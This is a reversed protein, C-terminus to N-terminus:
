EDSPSLRDVVERVRQTEERPVVLTRGNYTAVVLGEVGVVSVHSDEDAALVCDAADVALTEGEGARTNSTDAGVVRGVADWSGLDDWAFDAPVVVVDGTQELVARDISVPDVARFGREPAGADLADVLAALRSERAAGLLADPTWAFIGANWYWGRDLYRRATEADPKEVFREVDSHDGREAGPEVYGYGTAPRDPEVGVTVLSGTDAAVRAARRGTAAFDGEVHHDSPLCLLVCDGVQERVRHAAYVLAPGTDNSEPELLLAAGPAQDRVAGAYTEPALVYREDAFGARDVTRALLSRDGDLALLQKPRDPRSAPYLRTGQGGALVLVVLPRDM